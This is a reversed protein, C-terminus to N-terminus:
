GVLNKMILLTKNINKHLYIPMIILYKLIIEEICKKQKLLKLGIIYEMKNDNWNLGLGQLNELGYKNSMEDWFQGITNYQEENVLSFVKSIGKFIM